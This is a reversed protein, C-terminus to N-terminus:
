VQAWQAQWWLQEITATYYPSYSAWPYNGGQEYGGIDGFVIGTGSYPNLDLIWPGGSTGDNYNNCYFEEQGPLAYFSSTKCIIPASDTNNYGVVHVDHHKYSEDSGLRLGGTVRQIPEQTGAPPAVKLFAFDDNINGSQDWAATVTVTQVPWAGFPSVGNHWQPVYVVNQAYVGNGQAVCHAATLVLDLTASDVVSATCFHNQSGTTFFLAGVTRLGDFYVPNPLNPPPTIADHQTRGSPGAGTASVLRSATWYHAATSQAATAV